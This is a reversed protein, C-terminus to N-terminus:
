VVKELRAKEEKIILEVEEMNEIIFDKNITENTTLSKKIPINIYEDNVSTFLRAILTRLRECEEEDPHNFLSFEINV